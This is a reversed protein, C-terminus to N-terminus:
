IAKNIVANHWAKNLVRKFQNFTNYHYYYNGIILVTIILDNILYHLSKCIILKQMSLSQM